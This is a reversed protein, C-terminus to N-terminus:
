KKNESKASKPITNSCGNNHSVYIKCDDDSLDNGNGNIGITIESSFGAVTNGNGNIQINVKSGICTITNGNGNVTVSILAESISSVLASM